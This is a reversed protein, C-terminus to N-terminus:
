RAGEVSVGLWEGPRRDRRAGDRSRPSSRCPITFPTSASCRTLRDVEADLMGVFRDGMLIPHAFATGASLNPNSTSTCTPSTSSSRSGSATTCSDTTPISSPSAGARTTTTSRPSAEPDVRWKWTSGEVVAPEGTTKGVGNWYWHPKALGAAQLSREERLRAAEDDDYEPLDSPYVREALDWRRHRGERGVIAVEGLRSLFDLMIPVQNSGVLRRAVPEVQATDPIQTALLARPASARLSERASCMTRRSGSATRERRPFHRMGPILLALVSIPRFAATSSSSCGTSRVAKTLQGPEYSWGIRSWLVTHECPAITAMPDIKIEGLQEAVEVVDGPPPTSCSARVIIRRGPRPSPADGESRVQPTPGERPTM